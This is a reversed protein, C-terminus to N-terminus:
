PKRTHVAVFDRDSPSFYRNAPQSFDWLKAPTPPQANQAGGYSMFSTWAPNIDLEMGYVAGAAKLLKALTFVSLQGGGVYVIDGKATMGVGSRAIYYSNSVTYGWEASSGEGEGVTM